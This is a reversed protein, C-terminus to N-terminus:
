LATLHHVHLIELQETQSEKDHLGLPTTVFAGVINQSSRGGGSRDHLSSRGERPGRLSIEISKRSRENNNIPTSVLTPLPLCPTPPLCLIFRLERGAGNYPPFLWTQRQLDGSNDPLAAAIGGPKGVAGEM